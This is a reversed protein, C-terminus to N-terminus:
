RASSKGAAAAARPKKLPVVPPTIGARRQQTVRAADLANTEAEVEDPTLVKTSRENHPRGVPIFDTTAPRSRRVFDSATSSRAKLDFARLLGDFTGGEPIDAGRETTPVGAQAAAPLPALALLALIPVARSAAGAHNSFRRRLSVNNEAPSNLSTMGSGQGMITIPGHGAMSVPQSFLTSCSM